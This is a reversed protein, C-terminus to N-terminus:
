ADTYRRSSEHTRKQVSNQSKVPRQGIQDNAGKAEPLGADEDSEQQRSLSSDHKSAHKGREVVDTEDPHKDEYYEAGDSAVRDAVLHASPESRREKPAKGHLRAAPCFLTPLEELSASTRGDEEAAEGGQESGNDRAGGSQGRHSVAPEQEPVCQSAQAPADREGERPIHGALGVLTHDRYGACGRCRQDDNQGDRDRPEDDPPPYVLV